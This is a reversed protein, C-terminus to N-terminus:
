RVNRSDKNKLEFTSSNYKITTINQGSSLDHTYGTVYVDGSKDVTLSTAGNKANMPGNFIELGLEEGQQSYKITVFASSTDTQYTFGTVYVYQSKEDLAIATSCDERIGSSSYSKNWKLDGNNNYKITFFNSTTDTDYSYGTVYVDQDKDVAIGTAGSVVNPDGYYRVWREEGHKDYKITICKSTSDTDYVYGAIYVNGPIDVAIAVPNDELQGAGSYNLVWEPQAFLSYNVSTFLIIILLLTTPPNCKVSPLLQAM